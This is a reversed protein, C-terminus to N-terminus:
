GLILINTLIVQMKFCLFARWVKSEFPMQLTKLRTGRVPQWFNFDEPSLKSLFSYWHNDTVGLYYKM